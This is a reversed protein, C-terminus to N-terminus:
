FEVVAGVGMHIFGVGFVEQILSVAADGTCHAPGCQEIGLEQIEAIAAAVQGPSDKYLHFGGLLAFLPGDALDTAASAMTAVGPHACGVILAPGEATDLLLGVESPSDGLPATVTVGSCISTAADVLVVTAGAAEASNTLSQPFSAPCYVTVDPHVALLGLLGGTHDKHEHSLVVTDIAAPDIGLTEMNALLMESGSGTDFLVTQDYGKILCAFCWDTQLSAQLAQNDCVDTITIAPAPDGLTSPEGSLTEASQPASTIPAADPTASTTVNPSVATVTTTDDTAAQVCATTLLMMLCLACLLGRFPSSPVAKRAAEPLAERV